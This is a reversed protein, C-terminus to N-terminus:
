EKEATPLKATRGALLKAKFAAKQEDTLAEFRAKAAISRASPPPKVAKEKKPVVPETLLVELAQAPTLDTVMQEHGLLKQLRELLVKHSIMKRATNISSMKNNLTPLQITPQPPGLM